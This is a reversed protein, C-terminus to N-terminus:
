YLYVSVRTQDEVFCTKVFDAHTPHLLLDDEVDVSEEAEYEDPNHVLYNDEICMNLEGWESDRMFHELSSKFNTSTTGKFLFCVSLIWSGNIVDIGM